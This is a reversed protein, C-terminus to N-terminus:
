PCNPLTPKPSVTLYSILLSLDSIDIGSSGNVNAEAPCLLVPKPTVTLYSILLSLDSIDPAESASKNVNGTTGICCSLCQGVNKYWAFAKDIEKKLSDLGNAATGGAPRVVAIATWITLTDNAPLTYGTTAANKYVLVTHLDTIRTENSYGTAQMNAWLQEPVFGGAPYVFSDNAANYAGYLTGQDACGKLHMAILAAGAYRRDNQYCDTVTDASNFGRMYVLKRTPDTGGVNGSTGSDTAVDFDFAEGIALNTVSTGITYPFVRMRQIIFKCSDVNSAGTPAWWTKEVKVLSDVTCFTGSNFGQAKATTFFGPAAFGAVPKWGNPSQFGDDFIAWSAVYTTAGPKRVFVPSGDGLYITADGRGNDGTDCEPSPSPFGMNAGGIYNRGMNGNTSVTLAIGCQTTITDWVTNVITDAVIFQVGFNLTKTPPGYNYILKGYLVTPQPNNVVGGQNMIATMNATGGIAINAPAGSYGLWGSPAAPKTSDEDVTVSNLTLVTNGTNELTLIYNKQVGPKGYEPYGIFGPSISLLAAAVPSVCALRIWRMENNTYPGQSGIWGAGPLRDSMYWVQVHHTGAYGTGLDETYANSWDPSTYLADDMGYRSISAWSDDACTGTDCAPTYSQSLNRPADWAKGQLDSSVSLYVEGNSGQVGRSVACDDQPQAGDIGPYSFGAFVAYLRGDCEAISFKAFNMVNSGGVCGALTPDFGGDAITYINAPNHQSWHFLRCRRSGFDVGDTYSANWMVHLMDSTDWLSAIELWARYGAGTYNTVNTRVFSGSAGTPSIAVWVDCDSSNGSVHGGVSYKVWSVAVKSSVRSCAVDALPFHTTDTFVISWTNDPNLASWGVKRYLKIAGDGGSNEFGCLYLTTSGGSEYIDFTPWITEGGYAPSGDRVAEDMVSGDLIGGFDGVIPGADKSVQMQSATPAAAFDPWTYAGVYAIGDAGVAIKPYRGAEVSGPNSNQVIVKGGPPVYTASVAEYSAWGWQDNATASSLSMYSFQVAPLGSAPPNFDVNRGITSNAQWEDWTNAVLVGKSDVNPSASGLAITGNARGANQLRTEDDLLMHKKMLRAKEIRPDTPVRKADVTVALLGVLVFLLVVVSFWKKTM